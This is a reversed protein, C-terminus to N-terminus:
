AVHPLTDKVHLITPVSTRAIRYVQVLGVMVVMQNLCRAPVATTTVPIWVHQPAPKALTLPARVVHQKQTMIQIVARVLAHQKHQNALTM